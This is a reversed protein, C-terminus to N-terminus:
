IDEKPSPFKSDINHSYPKSDINHSPFESDVADSYAIVPTDYRADKATHILSKKTNEFYPQIDLKDRLIEGFSNFLAVIIFICFGPFLMLEPNERIYPIADNIMVGWEATPAQIGLGLFSLGAIHLLMHGFDLTALIIIQVLVSPIIHRTIIKFDSSGLSKAALIYGQSKLELVLSRVIRAYWAWHTIIITLIVNFLGVGFVGIFFLALIFTPFTLFVDCIRMLISDFLGGKYGAISGVILAFTVISISITLVSVLSIRLGYILRSLVDRGLHDTGLLHESSAPLLKKALSTMYPDYPAFFPAFAALLVLFILASLLFVFFINKRNPIFM